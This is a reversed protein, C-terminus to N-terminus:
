EKKPAAGPEVGEVRAISRDASQQLEPEATKPLVPKRKM